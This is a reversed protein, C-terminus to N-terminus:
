VSLTLSEGLTVWGPNWGLSRAKLQQRTDDKGEWDRLM